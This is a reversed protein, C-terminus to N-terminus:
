SNDPIKLDTPHMGKAIARKYWEPKRGLGNWTELPNEPNRMLMAAPAKSGRSPRAALERLDLGHVEALERIKRKADERARSSRAQLEHKIADALGRLDEDALAALDSKLADLDFEPREDTNM